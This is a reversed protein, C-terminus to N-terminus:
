KSKKATALKRGPIQPKEVRPKAWAHKYFTLIHGALARLTTIYPRDDADITYGNGFSFCLRDFLRDLNSRPFTVDLHDFFAREYDTDENLEEPNMPMMSRLLEIFLKYYLLKRVLTIPINAKDVKLWHREKRLEVQVVQEVGAPPSCDDIRDILPIQCRIHDVMALLAARGIRDALVDTSTEFDDRPSDLSDRVAFEFKAPGVHNATMMEISARIGSCAILARWRAADEAVTSPLLGNKFLLRLDSLAVEEELPMENIKTLM